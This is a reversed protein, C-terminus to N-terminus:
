SFVQNERTLVYTRLLLLFLSFYLPDPKHGPALATIFNDMRLIFTKTNHLTIPGRKEEEQFIGPFSALVLLLEREQAQYRGDIARWPSVGAPPSSGADCSGM